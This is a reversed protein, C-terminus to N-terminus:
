LPVKSLIIEAKRLDERDTIQIWFDTEIIEVHHDGIVKLLTQPLGWEDKLELKVPEYNFIDATLSYLGTFILGAGDRITRYKEHTVFDILNNNSDTVIRDGPKDITETKGVISFDFQVCKKIAESSYIDDGMMVVFRRRVVDKAQWLAHATGSVTRDEVYVIPIKRFYNGFAEKIKKGKYGIVLVIKDIEEPLSELKYELLTKNGIHLLPKPIDRTLEGMRTGMGACLIVAPMAM